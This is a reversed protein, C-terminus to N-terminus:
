KRRKYTTEECKGNDLQTRVLMQAETLTVVDMVKRGEINLQRGDFTYGATTPAAGEYNTITTSTVVWFGVGPVPMSYGEDAAYYQRSIADWTGILQPEKYDNGDYDMSCSTLNIFGAIMAILYVLSRTM